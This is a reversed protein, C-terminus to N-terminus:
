KELTKNGTDWVNKFAKNGDVETLAELKWLM